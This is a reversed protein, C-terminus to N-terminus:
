WHTVTKRWFFGLSCLFLNKKKCKSHNTDSTFFLWQVLIRHIVRKLHRLGCKTCGGLSGQVNPSTCHRWGSTGNVNHISCFQAIILVIKAIFNWCSWYYIVIIAFLHCHVIRLFPPRKRLWWHTIHTLLLGPVREWWRFLESDWKLWSFQKIGGDSM